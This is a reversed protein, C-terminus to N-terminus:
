GLRSARLDQSLRADGWLFAVLSRVRDSLGGDAGDDSFRLFAPAVIEFGPGAGRPGADVIPQVVDRLYAASHVPHVVLGDAIEAALATM